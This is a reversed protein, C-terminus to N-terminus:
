LWRRIYELTEQWGIKQQQMRRIEEQIFREVLRPYDPQFVVFGNDLWRQLNKALLSFLEYLKRRDPNRAGHVRRVWEDPKVITYPIEIMIDVHIRRSAFRGSERAESRYTEKKIQLGIRKGECHVLA